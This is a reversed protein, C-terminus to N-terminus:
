ASRIATRWPHTPQLIALAGDLWWLRADDLEPLVTYLDAEDKDRPAKAKFLM